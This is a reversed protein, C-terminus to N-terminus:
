NNPVNGNPIKLEEISDKIITIGRKIEKINRTRFDLKEM